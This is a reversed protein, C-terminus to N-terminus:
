KETKEARKETLRRLLRDFGATFDSADAVAIEVAGRYQRHQGKATASWTGAVPGQADPPLLLVFEDDATLYNKGPRLQNIRVEIDVSSSNRFEIWDRGIVSPPYHTFVSEPLITPSPLWSPAKPRPGWPEPPAPLAIEGADRKKGVARVPGDLHIDLEIEELYRDSVVSFQMGPWRYAMVDDTWSAFEDRVAAAWDSIEQMYQQISRPDEDMQNLLAGLSGISPRLPSSAHPRWDVTSDIIKTPQRASQTLRERERDLYSDLPASDCRYSTVECSTTVTLTGAPDSNGSRRQQLARLEDGKARRTAGDVRIFVDGDHLNAPGDKCCVWIPDGDSPPDVAIVIVDRDSTVRVRHFDWPPGPEGLYQRVADELDKAEFAALGMVVGEAVGLLMVAHGELYRAARVVDRNAAGLIFKAVKAAGEKSIPDIESKMELFHREAREGLRSAEAILARWGREGSPLRSLDIEPVDDDDELV